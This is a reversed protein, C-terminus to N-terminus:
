CREVAKQKQGWIYENEDLYITNMAVSVSVLEGVWPVM